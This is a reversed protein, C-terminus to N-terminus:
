GPTAHIVQSKWSVLLTERKASVPSNRGIARDCRVVIRSSMRVFRTESERGCVAAGMAVSREASSSSCSMRRTTDRWTRPQNPCTSSPFPVHSISTSATILSTPNPMKRAYLTRAEIKERQRISSQSLLLVLRRVVLGKQGLPAFRDSVGEFVFNRECQERYTM